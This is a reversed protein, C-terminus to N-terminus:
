VEHTNLGFPNAEARRLHKGLEAPGICKTAERTGYRGPDKMCAVGLPIPSDVRSLFAGGGGRGGEPWRRRSAPPPSQLTHLAHCLRRRAGLHAPFQAERSNALVQLPNGRPLTIELRPTGRTFAHRLHSEALPIKTDKNRFPTELVDRDSHRCRPFPGGKGTM